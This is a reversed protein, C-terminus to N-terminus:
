ASRWIPLRRFLQQLLLILSAPLFTKLFKLVKNQTKPPSFGLERCSRLARAAASFDWFNLLQIACREYEGAILEHYKGPLSVSYNDLFDLRCSICYRDNQSVGRRHRISYALVQDVCQFRAGSIALRVFLDGDEWCRLSENFGNISLFLDRKILCGIVGIPNVITHWIPDTSLLKQNYRRAIMIRETLEEIWDVNSIVADCDQDTYPVLTALFHSAIKDDADLFHLWKASSEKALRNRAYGPGRPDSAGQDYIVRYGLDQLIARTNDTSCDDFFIVEQYKQTQEKIQADLDHLYNAANFCPVLLSVNNNM